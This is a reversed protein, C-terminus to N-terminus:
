TLINAAAPVPVGALYSITTPYPNRYVCTFICAMASLDVLMRQEGRIGVLNLKKRPNANSSKKACACCFSQAPDARERHEGEGSARKVEEIGDSEDRQGATQHHVSSPEGDEARLMNAFASLLSRPCRPGAAGQNDVRNPRVPIM